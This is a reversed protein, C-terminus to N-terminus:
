PITFIGLIVERIFLNYGSMRLGHTARRNYEKKQAASLTNKWYAVANTLLTRYAASEVNNISGPVFYTYKDQYIEGDISGYYGNGRRMRYTSTQGISKRIGAGVLVGLYQRKEHLTAM